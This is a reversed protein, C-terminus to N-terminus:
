PPYLRRELMNADVMFKCAWNLYEYRGYGGDVPFSGKVGGRTEAPGDVRITRRVYRTAARGADLYAPYGTQKFLTLWCWGIQVSGTLCAWSVTGRWNADLRGPLFGDADIASLIGDATRRAAALLSADRTFVYAEVLGRLVYGITHTLPMTDDTLCCKEFWGNPRQHGLSWRVNALAADVYHQGAASGEVRAAELLGWAVHTEYAKEGPAAFPTPFKRWCGDSDQTKVLWDAARRMPERYVEGFVRAGSALGLLIQGTNFTVPVRPEADVVGGQFGGDPFQISVLWDLMRRARSQAEHRADGTAQDAYQLVTPVIYGTTEPYSKSWGSTLSFHRAVGGDQSVSHDQARALWDLGEEIVRIVGPDHLPLGRRDAAVQRKAAPPLSRYRRLKGRLGNLVRFM